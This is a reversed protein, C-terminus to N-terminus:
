EELCKQQKHWVAGELYLGHVQVGESQPQYQKDLRGDESVVYNSTVEVKNEVEDLAWGDNRHMRTVEQRNSTLFGQPNFFGTMWFSPPREKNIWSALQHYRDNLGKLWGSLSPTLWSIEAGTPDYQWNKPVRFDFIAYIYEVLESTMVVTGDIAQVMNEMTTKVIKLVRTFRQIEQFLFINLPIQEGQGSLGRPGRLHALKEKVELEVFNQPLDKLLEQTLKDKVEEEKSKGGGAGSDKPMTDLLTNLMDRSDTLRYTMDANGNLGFIMPHDTQPMQGIIELFKAHEYFDPICYQFQDDKVNDNFIYGAKEFLESKIWLNGYAAFMERDLNDTIRGGYQVDCTVYKMAYYQLNQGMNFSQTMHKEIYFLSAELDSTNFEYPVCFGLPGFKRREQVISHLFCIGYLINRWKDPPEVKELFDQNIMTTFTRYLGAKLGKPPETVVKVAMQLLGLPFENHPDCTLWLRFDPHPEANKPNLLDEMQAMFELSLHCNNLVLWKGTTLGTKLCDEAPIEQAEGMSVKNCPYQKMKRSFDDIQANPDAGASLLFLVPKNFTSEAHLEPLSDSIPEVYEPGLVKQIFINSCLVTRDERLCRILCLHLFHGINPENQIRDHCDPVDVLEPKDELCFNNWEKDHRGILDPLEKFFFQHDNGFKHRSLALINLWVKQDM